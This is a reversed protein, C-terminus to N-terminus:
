CAIARTGASRAHLALSSGPGLAVRYPGAALAINRKALRASPGPEREAESCEAPVRAM